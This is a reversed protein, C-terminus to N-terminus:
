RIFRPPFSLQPLQHLVPCPLLLMTPLLAVEIEAMPLPLHVNQSADGKLGPFSLDGRDKARVAAPLRGEELADTAEPLRPLTLHLEFANVHKRLRVQLTGPNECGHGLFM